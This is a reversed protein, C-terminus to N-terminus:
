ARREKETLASRRIQILWQRTSKADSAGVWLVVADGVAADRKESKAVGLLDVHDRAAAAKLSAAMPTNGLPTQVPPTVAAPPAAPQPTDATEGWACVVCAATLLLMLAGRVGVEFQQYSPSITRPFM